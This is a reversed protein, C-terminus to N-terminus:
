SSTSGRDPNESLSRDHKENSESSQVQAAKTKANAQFQRQEREEASLAERGWADAAKEAIIRVNDLTTEAARDRQAAEQARCHASSPRM